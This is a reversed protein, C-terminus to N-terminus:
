RTSRGHVHWRVAFPRRRTHVLRGNAGHGDGRCRRHQHDVWRRSCTGAAQFVSLSRLILVSRATDTRGPCGIGLLESVSHSRIGRRGDVGVSDSRSCIHGTRRTRFVVNRSRHGAGRCRCWRHIGFHGPHRNWGVGCCRWPRDLRRCVQQDGGDRIPRPILRLRFGMGWLQWVHRRHRQRLRIGVRWDQFPVVVAYPRDRPGANRALRISCYRYVRRSPEGSVHCSVVAHDRCMLVRSRRSRRGHEIHVACRDSARDRQEGGVSCLGHASCCERGHSCGRRRHLGPRLSRQVAM